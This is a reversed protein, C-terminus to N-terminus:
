RHLRKRGSRGTRQRIRGEGNQADSRGSRQIQDEVFQREQMSLKDGYERIYQEWEKAKWNQSDAYETIEQAWERDQVAWNRTREELYRRDEIADREARYNREYNRQDENWARSYDREEDYRADEVADRDTNYKFNRDTNFQGLRDRYKDYDQQGYQNLRDVGNMKKEYEDMYRSYDTQDYDNYLSAAKLQQNQDDRFRQYEEQDFNGLQEAEAMRKQYEDMYREYDTQDYQGYRDAQQILRDGRDRFQQYDQQGYQNYQNAANAQRAAQDAFRNYDEQGYNAYRDAGQLMRNSQDQYRNYAEQGYGAYQNAANMEQNYRDRFQDYEQQGYQNYRDAQQLNRGQQDAWRNYERDDFGAYQDSIGMQKQYEQLYRNYADNYLQPIKDSLQSAYYDGAQSAATMAYSSPMGGTMAAAQGLTDQAARQGERRYQKQYAQWVPDTDPDYNWQMEEARRLAEDRRQQYESGGWTEGAAELAADRKADYPSGDWRMNRANETAQDRLADYESGEYGQMAKELYEDRAADYPSGEYERLSNELAQDRKADYPSGGYEQGAEQLARDRMEQYRSGNWNMGRAENFADDRQRQYPSGGWAQTGSKTAEDRMKQYPSGNWSMGQAEALMADRQADYQSGGWEPASGYDFRGLYNQFANPTYGTQRGDPPRRQGPISFIETKTPETIVQGNPDPTFSGSPTNGGGMPTSGSYPVDNGGVGPARKGELITAANEGAHNAAQELVEPNLDGNERAKAAIYQSNIPMIAGSPDRYFGEAELVDDPADAYSYKTYQGDKLQWFGEDGSHYGAQPGIHQGFKLFDVTGSKTLTGDAAMTYANGDPAYFVTGPDYGTEGVKGGFVPAYGGTGNAAYLWGNINGNADTFSGWNGDERFGNTDQNWSQDGAAYKAGISNWAAQDEASMGSKFNPDKKQFTYYQQGGQAPMQTGTGPLKTSQASGGTYPLNQAKAQGGSYPLNSIQAQGGSYPLNQSAGAAAGKASDAQKIANMYPTSGTLGQAASQAAATAGTPIAAQSALSLAQAAGKAAAAQPTVSSQQLKKKAEDIANTFITNAM